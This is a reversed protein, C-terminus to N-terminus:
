GVKPDRSHYSESPDELNQQISNTSHSPAHLNWAAQHRLKRVVYVAIGGALFYPVGVMLYINQNYARALRVQDEDEADSENAVADRCNPCASLRSSAFTGLILFAVFAFNWLKM